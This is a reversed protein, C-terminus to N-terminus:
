ATANLADTSAHMDRVFRRDAVEDGVLIEPKELV